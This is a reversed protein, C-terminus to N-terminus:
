TLLRKAVRVTLAAVSLRRYHPAITTTRQPSVAKQVQKGMHEFYSEVNDKATNL